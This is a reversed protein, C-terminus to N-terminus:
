YRKQVKENIMTKFYNKFSKVNNITQTAFASTMIRCCIM